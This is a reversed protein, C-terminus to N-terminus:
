IIEKEMIDLRDMQLVNLERQQLLFARQTHLLQVRLGDRERTIADLQAQMADIEVQQDKLQGM